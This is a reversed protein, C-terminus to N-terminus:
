PKLVRGLSKRTQMWAREWEAQHSDLGSNDIEGAAPNPEYQWLAWTWIGLLGVFSLQSTWQWLPFYSSIQELLAHNVVSLAIYIGLGIAVGWMNRGLRIGYYQVMSMMAVLAAAQSFNIRREFDPFFSEPKFLGTAVGFDFLFAAFLSSLVLLIIASAMTRINKRWSFSQRFVEWLIMFRFISLLAHSWWYAVPYYPSSLERLPLLCVSRVFAIALYMFLYPYLRVLGLRIGRWLILFELGMGLWYIAYQIPTM